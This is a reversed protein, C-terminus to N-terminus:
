CMGSKATKIDRHRPRRPAGPVVPRSRRRALGDARPVPRSTRQRQIKIMVGHGAGVPVQRAEVARQAGSDDGMEVWFTQASLSDTEEVSEVSGFKELASRVQALIVHEDGFVCIHLSRATVARVPVAPRALHVAAIQGVTNFVITETFRESVPKSDRRLITGRIVVGLGCPTPRISALSTFIRPMAVLEAVTQADHRQIRASPSFLRVLGHRPADVSLALVYQAVLAFWNTPIPALALAATTPRSPSPLPTTDTAPRSPSPLPTTDSMARESDPMPPAKPWKIPRPGGKISKIVDDVRSLVLDLRERTIRFTAPTWRSVAPETCVCLAAHVVYLGCPQVQVPVGGDRLIKKAEEDLQNAMLDSVHVQMDRPPLDLLVRFVKDHWELRQRLLAEDRRGPLSDLVHVHGSAVGHPYYVCSLHEATLLVPAFFPSAANAVGDGLGRAGHLGLFALQQDTFLSQLTRKDVEGDLMGM